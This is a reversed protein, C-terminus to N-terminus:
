SLLRPLDNVVLGGLTSVPPFNPPPNLAYRAPPDLYFLGSLQSVYKQYLVITGPVLTEQTWGTELTKPGNKAFMTNNENAVVLASVYRTGANAGARELILQHVYAQSIRERTSIKTPVVLVTSSLPSAFSLDTTIMEVEDTEAVPIAIAGGEERGSLLSIIPGVAMELFTGPGGRDGPSLLDVVAAYSIVASYVLRDVEKAAVGGLAGSGKAAKAAAVLAQWRESFEAPDAVLLDKNIARSFTDRHGKLAAVEYSKEGQGRFAFPCLDAEVRLLTM